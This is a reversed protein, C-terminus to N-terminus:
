IGVFQSRYDEFMIRLGTVAIDRNDFGSIGPQYDEIGFRPEYGWKNKPTFYVTGINWMSDASLINERVLQERM